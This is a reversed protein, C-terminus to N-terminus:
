RVRKKLMQKRQAHTIGGWVGEEINEEISYKLCERQLPCRNCVGIAMTELQPDFFIEPDIWEETCKAQENGDNDRTDFLRIM